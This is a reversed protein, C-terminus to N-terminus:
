ISVMRDIIKFSKKVAKNAYNLAEEYKDFYILSNTLNLYLEVIPIRERHDESDPIKIYKKFNM